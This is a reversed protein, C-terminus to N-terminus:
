RRNENFECDTYILKQLDVILKLLWMKEYVFAEVGSLRRTTGQACDFPGAALPGLEADAVKIEDDDVFGVAGDVLFVSGYELM